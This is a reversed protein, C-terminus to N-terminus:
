FYVVYRWAGVCLPGHRGLTRAWLKVNPPASSRACDLCDDNPILPDIFSDFCSSCVYSLSSFFFFFFNPSVNRAKKVIGAARSALARRLSQVVKGPVLHLDVVAVVALDQVFYPRLTDTLNDIAVQEEETIEVPEEQGSPGAALPM